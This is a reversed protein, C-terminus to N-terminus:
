SRANLRELHRRGEDIRSGGVVSGYESIFILFLHYGDYRNAGILALRVLPPWALRLDVLQRLNQPLLGPPPNVIIGRRRIILYAM